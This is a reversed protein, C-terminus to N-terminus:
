VHGQGLSYHDQTWKAIRVLLMRGIKWCNMTPELCHNRLFLLVGFSGVGMTMDGMLEYLHLLLLGVQQRRQPNTVKDLYQSLLFSVYRGCGFDQTLKCYTNASFIPIPSCRAFGELLLQPLNAHCYHIDNCTIYNFVRASQRSYVLKMECFVNRFPDSKVYYQQKRILFSEILPILRNRADSSLANWAAPFLILWYSCTM